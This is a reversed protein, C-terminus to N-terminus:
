CVQGTKVIYFIKNGGCKFCTYLLNELPEQPKKLQRMIHKVKGRASDFVLHEFIPDMKKNIKQIYLLYGKSVLWFSNGGPNQTLYFIVSSPFFYYCSFFMRSVDGLTM